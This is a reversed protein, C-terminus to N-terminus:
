SSLASNFSTQFSYLSFTRNPNMHRLMTVHAESLIYHVM